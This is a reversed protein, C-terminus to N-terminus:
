GCPVSELVGRLLGAYLRFVKVDAPLPHMFRERVGQVKCHRRMHHVRVEPLPQMQWKHCWSRVSSAEFGQFLM